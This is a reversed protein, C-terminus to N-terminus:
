ASGEGRIREDKASPIAAPAFRKVPASAQRGLRAPEGAATRSEYGSHVFVMGGAIATMVGPDVSSHKAFWSAAATAAADAAPGSMAHAAGPITTVGTPGKVVKSAAVAHTENSVVTDKEAVVFLVATAPPIADLAKFPRYEALALRAEPDNTTGATAATM